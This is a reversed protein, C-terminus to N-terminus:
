PKAAVDAAVDARVQAKDAKAQLADIDDDVEKVFAELADKAQQPNGVLWARIFPVKFVALVAYHMIAKANALALGVSFMVIPNHSATQYMANLDM